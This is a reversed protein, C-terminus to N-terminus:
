PQAGPWFLTSALPFTALSVSPGLVMGLPALGDWPGPHSYVRVIGFADPITINVGGGPLIRLTITSSITFWGRGALFSVPGTWVCAGAATLPYDGPRIPFVSPGSTFAPVRLVYNASMVLLSNPCFVGTLPAFGPCLTYTLVDSTLPLWVGSDPGFRFCNWAFSTDDYFQAPGLVVGVTCIGPDVEQLVWQGFTRNPPTPNLLTFQPGLWTCHFPPLTPGLDVGSREGVFSLSWNGNGGAYPSAPSIGSTFLCYTDWAGNPCNLCSFFQFPSPPIQCCAIGGFQNLAVPPSPPLADGSAFQEATGCPRLGSVPFPPTGDAWTRPAGPVEGLEIDGEPVDLWENSDFITGFPLYPTDEPVFFWRIRSPRPDDRFFRCDTEYCSRLSAVAM